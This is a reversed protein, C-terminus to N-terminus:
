PQPTAAQEAPKVQNAWRRSLVAHRARYPDDSEEVEITALADPYQGLAAYSDALLSRAAAVSRGNRRYRKLYDAFAKAAAEYDGSEFKCLGSWFFADDAAELYLPRLGQQPPPDVSLQRITVYQSVAKARQGHLQETRTRLQQMTQSLTPPQGDRGPLLEMPMLFPAIQREIWLRQRDDMRIFQAEHEGPYKWAQVQEPTWEPRLEAIRQFVGPADGLPGPADYLVCLSDGPLLQEVRWMRPSWSIPETYVLLEASALQEASPAYPQDDGTRLTQLWEPHALVQALTAPPQGPEASEGQPIPLGLRLDFLYLEGDLPVGVLWPADPVNFDTGPPSLLVLDWRLQKLIAGMAWARDAPSGRGIVLLEYLTFPRNSLDESELSLNRCCWDFVGVIKDLEKDAGETVHDAIARALYAARIARGDLLGYSDRDLDTELGEPVRDAPIPPLILGKPELNAEKVAAWWNNLVSVADDLRSDINLNEPQLQYLASRLQDEIEALQASSPAAGPSGTAAAPSSAKPRGCGAAVVALGMVLLLWRRQPVGTRMFAM